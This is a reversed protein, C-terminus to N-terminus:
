GGAERREVFRKPFAAAAEIWQQPNEGRGDEFMLAGDYDIERLGAFLEGWRITGSPSLPARHDPRTKLNFTEHLHTHIVRGACAGLAERARGQKVFPNVGDADRPHGIDVTLGFRRSGVQDVFRAYRDLPGGMNEVTLRIKLDESASLLEDVARRSRDSTGFHAVFVDAGAEEGFRIEALAEKLVERRRKKDETQFPLKLDGHISVVEVGQERCAKLIEAKQGRNRYDFSSALLLLEMRAIGAARIAAVHRGGLREKQFVAM